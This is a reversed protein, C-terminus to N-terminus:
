QRGGMRLVLKGQQGVLVVQEGRISQVRYGDGVQDGVKVFFRKDDQRLIAVTPKGDVIGTLSLSPKESGDPLPPTGAQTEAPAPPTGTAPETTPVAPSPAVGEGGPATFPNRQQAGAGGAEGAKTAAPAVAETAQGGDLKAEKDADKEGAPQAVAVPPPPASKGRFTWVAVGLAVVALVLLLVEKRRGEM